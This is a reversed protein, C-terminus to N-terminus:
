SVNKEGKLNKIRNNIILKSKYYQFPHKYKKESPDIIIGYENMKVYGPASIESEFIRNVQYEALQKKYNPAKSFFSTVQEKSMGVQRLFGAITLNEFHTLKQGALGKEYIKKISPPFLLPNVKGSLKLTFTKEQLAGLQPEISKAVKILEKPIKEKPIPLSDVIKKYAKESLFRAFDNVNLFVLGNSVSKNVLKTEDYIFYVDLYDLLEIEVFETESLKYKLNFDDALELALEKPNEGEVIHKFTKKAILNAFKENLNPIKIVSILMKATPFAMIEIRLLEKSTSLLDFDYEKNTNAKSILIAARKVISEPIANIDINIDKIFNKSRESYPFFYSFELNEM